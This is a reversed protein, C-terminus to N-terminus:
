RTGAASASSGLNWDMCETAACGILVAVFAGVVVLGATKLPDTKRVAIQRVDALAVSTPGGALGRASDAPAMGRISDGAVEPQRVVARTGDVRTIRVQKPAQDRVLAAPEVDQVRWSTCGSASMLFAGLALVAIGRSGRM